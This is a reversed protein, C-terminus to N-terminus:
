PPSIGVAPGNDRAVVAGVIAAQPLESTVAQAHAPDVAIVLGLSSRTTAVIQCSRTFYCRAPQLLLNASRQLFADSLCSVVSM